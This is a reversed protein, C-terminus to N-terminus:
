REGAREIWNEIRSAAIDTRAALDAADAAALEAVSTVDAERLREAYAPGIGKIDELDASSATTADTSPEDGDTEPGSAVASDTSETGSGAENATESGSGSESTTETGKMADESATAPEHEVTVNVEDGPSPSETGSAPGSTGLGLASKLREILGMTTTQM